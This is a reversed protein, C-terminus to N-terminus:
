QTRPEEPHAEALKQLTTLNRMTSAIGITKAVVPWSVVSDTVKGRCLWYLERGDVHFDDMKSRLSLLKRGAEKSPVNRLFGIHLSHGTAEVQEAAFPRHSVVSALQSRTRIFTPAEYGLAVHLHEEIRQEVVAADTAPSDFIVNGSAIFTSVNAFDLAEFLERLHDMKVRHGGVNIGRLFAIYRQPLNKKPM